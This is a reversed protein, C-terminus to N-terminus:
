PVGKFITIATTIDKFMDSETGVSKRHLSPTTIEIPAINDAFGKKTMQTRQTTTTTVNMKKSDSDIDALSLLPIDDEPLFNCLCCVDLSSLISLGKQRKPRNKRRMRKKNKRKRRKSSKVKRVISRKARSNLTLAESNITKNNRTNRDENYIQLLISTTSDLNELLCPCCGDKIIMTNDNSGAITDLTNSANM